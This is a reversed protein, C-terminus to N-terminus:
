GDENKTLDSAGRREMVWRRVGGGSGGTSLWEKERKEGGEGVM